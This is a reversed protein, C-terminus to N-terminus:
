GQEYECTIFEDLLRDFVIYYSSWSSQTNSENADSRTYGFVFEILRDSFVCDDIDLSYYGTLDATKQYEVFELIRGYHEAEFSHKTLIPKHEEVLDYFM